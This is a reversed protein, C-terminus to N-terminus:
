PPLEPQPQWAECTWADNQGLKCLRQQVRYRRGDFRAIQEYKECCGLGWVYRLDLLGHSMAGPATVGKGEIQGAFESCNKRKLYVYYVCGGTGCGDQDAIFEDKQGDRDLDVFAEAFLRPAPKGEANFRLLRATADAYPEVCKRPHPPAAPRACGVWLCLCIAVRRM